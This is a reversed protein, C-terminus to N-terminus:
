TSSGEDYAIGLQSLGEELYDSLLPIGLLYSATRRNHARAAEARLDDWDEVGGDGRGLWVLAVLDVQEDENLGFIAARLEAVVPDDSHDELVFLMADDSANSASDPDTVVDKVDFERAKAIIYAVKEASIALAPTNAGADPSLRATSRSRAKM